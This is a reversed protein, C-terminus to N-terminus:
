NNDHEGNFCLNAPKFDPLSSPIEFAIFNKACSEESLVLAM